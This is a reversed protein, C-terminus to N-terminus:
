DLSFAVFQLKGGRQIQLAVPAGPPLAKLTERLRDLTTMPQGNLRRIVDGTVLPVEGASGAAKAAVIIGFPARLGSVTAAIKEDIEVGLIGLAPVLNKAPDALSIVQDMDGTEEEVGVNFTKQAAGRLVVVQAKDGLDRLLFHYSVTPLDDAPQGDISVLVDGVALGAAEAPGGPLVDSIIVGYNKSLGLAAAMVPTITQIGIGMEEQRLHGFQKLQRYVTRVTACPIAFGLGENGGSQSLIFTNMGVVEGDVNVLPGGSNGPNVPADTQIYIVPSDPDIQRAVASVIGHTVTNRLGQPSGFAFVTEGQRLNRYAALPLAPLKAGEIKLLALDIGRAQGVIRAPVINVKSSLATALSADADPPPLVVQVRQAANVVHANTVIYGEPDIVFGSGIARQQGVPGGTRGPSEELPGYSTVVIQIVSPAVKKILGDVLQNAGRLTDRASEQASAPTASHLAIVLIALKSLLSRFRVEGLSL